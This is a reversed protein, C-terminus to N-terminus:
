QPVPLLQGLLWPCLFASSGACAFVWFCGVVRHNRQNPVSLSCLALSLGACSSVSITVPAPLAELSLSSIKSKMRSPLGNFLLPMCEVRCCDNVSCRSHQAGILTIPICHHVLGVIIRSSVSSGNKACQNHPICTTHKM